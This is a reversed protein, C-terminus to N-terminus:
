IPNWLVNGIEIGPIWSWDGYTDLEQSTPMWLGPIWNRNPPLRRLRGPALGPNWAAAGCCVDWFDPAYGLM